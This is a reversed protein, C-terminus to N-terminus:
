FFFFPSRIRRRRAPIRVKQLKGTAKEIYRRIPRGASHARGPVRCVITRQETHATPVAVADCFSARVNKKAVVSFAQGGM